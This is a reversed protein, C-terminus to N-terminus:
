SKEGTTRAFLTEIENLLNLIGERNPVDRDAFLRINEMRRSVESRLRAVADQVTTKREAEGHAKLTEFHDTEQRLEEQLRRVDQRASALENELNKSAERQQALETRLLETESLARGVESQLDLNERGIDESQRFLAQAIKLLEPLAKGVLPKEPVRAIVARAVIELNNSPAPKQRRKSSIARDLATALADLAAQFRVPQDWLRIVGYLIPLHLGESAFRKVDSKTHLDSLRASVAKQVDDVSECHRLDLPTSGKLLIEELPPIFPTLRTQMEGVARLALLRFAIYRASKSEKVKRLYDVRSAEVIPPQLSRLTKFADKYGKFTPSGTESPAASDSSENM